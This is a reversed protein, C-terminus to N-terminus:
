KGNETDGDNQEWFDENKLGKMISKLLDKPKNRGRIREQITILAQNRMYAAHEKRGYIDPLVDRLAALPHTDKSEKKKIAQNHLSSFWASPIGQKTRNIILEQQDFDKRLFIAGDPYMIAVVQPIYNEWKDNYRNPPNRGDFLLSHRHDSRILFGSRINLRRAAHSVLTMVEEISITEWIPKGPPVFAEIPYAKAQAWSAGSIVTHEWDNQM